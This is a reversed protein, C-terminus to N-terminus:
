ERVKYRVYMPVKSKKMRYGNRDVSPFATILKSGEWDSPELQFYAILHAIVMTIELKALRMGPCLHRGSGWGVYTHAEKEQKDLGSGEMLYRGPDFKSPEPYTTPDMHVSDMLFSAYAGNPIVEGTDGIPVASGSANKRFMAGPMALRVTERFAAVTVPFESEWEQLSLAGLIDHASHNQSKRNKAIVGDIEARCRVQWEPSHAIFVILWAASCGETTIGSSLISFLFTIVDKDEDLLFQIADDEPKGTKKRQNVAKTISRYLIAGYFFKKLHTLTILWPFVIRARSCNEEFRCFASLNRNLVKDDALWESVGVVRMILKFILPYMSDFPNFVRWQPCTRSPTEQTLCQHFARVDSTLVPLKSVLRSPRLLALLSKIFDQAGYDERDDNASVFGALLEIAGQSVSLKKSEFFTKRGDLGGLNVIHKSGVFFSFDQKSVLMDRRRMFFPFASGILRVFGEVIGDMIGSM